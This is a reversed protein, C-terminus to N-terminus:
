NLTRHDVTERKHFVFGCLKILLNRPVTDSAMLM